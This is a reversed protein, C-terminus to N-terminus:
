RRGRWGWYAHQYGRYGPAFYGGWYYARRRYGCPEYCPAAPTHVVHVHRPGSRHLHYIHKYRVPAYVHHHVYVTGPPAYPACCTPVPNSDDWGGAQAPQIASLGLLAAALAPILTLRM